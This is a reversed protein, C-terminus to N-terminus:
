KANKALWAQMSAIEREQAAIIATALKQNEPDKGYKLIINAADIAAQHHPIMGRVFDIDANGSYTVAMDHMMKLHAQKFAVTAPSDGPAPMMGKMMKQMMAPDMGTGMPTGGSPMTGSGHTSGHGGPQTSQAQVPASLAVALLGVSVYTTFLKM